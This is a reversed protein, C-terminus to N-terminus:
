TGWSAAADMMLRTAKRLRAVCNRLHAGSRRAGWGLAMLVAYGSIEVGNALPATRALHVIQLFVDQDDQRLEEGTYVIEFGQISMGKDRRFAARVEAKGSSTFLASRALPNPMARAREPWLPLQSAVQRTKSPNRSVKKGLQRLKEGFDDIELACEGATEM